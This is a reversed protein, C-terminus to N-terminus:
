YELHSGLNLFELQSELTVESPKMNGGICAAARFTISLSIFFLCFIADSIGM